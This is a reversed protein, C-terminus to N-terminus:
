TTQRARKTRKPEAEPAPTSDAERTRIRINSYETELVIKPGGTKLKGKLLGVDGPGQTGELGQYDSDVRGNRATADIQFAANVPLFLDINGNRNKVNLEGKGVTGTSLTVDGYENSIKCANEFNNVTVDKHNTSIEVPGTIADAHVGTGEARVKVYGSITDLTLRDSNSIIDLNGKVDKVQITAYRTEMTVNSDVQSVQVRKHSAAIKLADSINRATVQCGQGDIVVAKAVKDVTVSSDTNSVTVKGTVDRIEVPSYEARVNVDGKITEAYVRGRADVTLNGTLNVIRSDAYRNAVAVDGSCDRVELPNHSTSLDLKGEIGAVRVEGYSNRVTIETKRPVLVEMETNFRYDKSSLAERNTRVVFVKNAAKNRPAPEAEPKVNAEAEVQGEPGGELRIEDAISKARAEDDNFVVKRLRIRVEGETGPLISIPGYANEVRLPASPTIPYAAEQSYSFSRGIWQGPRVSVEGISIPMERLIHGFNSGEIKTVATGIILLIFIGFVEGLHLSVGEKHRYYDIVKGLGLLILLIPWYRGVMSWFDPGISYNHLLFLVGV